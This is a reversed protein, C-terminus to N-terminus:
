GFHIKRPRKLTSVVECSRTMFINLSESFCKAQLVGCLCLYCFVSFHLNRDVIKSVPRKYELWRCLGINCLYSKVNRFMSLISSYSMMMMVTDMNKTKLNKSSANSSQSYKMSPHLNTPFIVFSPSEKVKQPLELFEETSSMATQFTLVVRMKCDVVRM